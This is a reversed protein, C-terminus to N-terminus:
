LSVLEGAQPLVCRVSPLSRAAEEAFVFRARPITSALLHEAIPDSFEAEAHSPIVTKVKL